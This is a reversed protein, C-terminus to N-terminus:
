GSYDGCNVKQFKEPQTTYISKVDTGVYKLPFKGELVKMEFLNENEFKEFSIKLGSVTSIVLKKNVVELKTIKSTFKNKINKVDAQDCYNFITFDKSTNSVYMSPSNCNCLMTFDLGYKEFLKKKKDNVVSLGTLKVDFLSTFNELKDRNNKEDSVLIKQKEKTAFVFFYGDRSVLLYKDNILLLNDFPFDEKTKVVKIQSTNQLNLNEKLCNWKEEDLVSFLDIEKEESKKINFTKDAYLDDAEKQTFYDVASNCFGISKYFIFVRSDKVTINSINESKVPKEKTPKTSQQCSVSTFILLPIIFYKIHQIM